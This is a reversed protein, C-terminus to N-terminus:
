VTEKHGESRDVPLSFEVIFGGGSENKASISGDHAEVIGKCISLGLGTGKSGANEGRYFKEFL